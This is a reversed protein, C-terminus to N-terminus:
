VQEDTLESIPVSSGIDVWMVQDLDSLEDLAVARLSAYIMKMAPQFHVDRGGLASMRGVLEEQSERSCNPDLIM